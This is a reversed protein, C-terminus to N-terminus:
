FGSFRAYAAGVLILGFAALGLGATSWIARKGEVFVPVYLLMAIGFLLMVFGVLAGREERVFGGPMTHQDHSLLVSLFFMSAIYLPAALLWRMVRVLM